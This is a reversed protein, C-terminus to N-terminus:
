EYSILAEEQSEMWNPGVEVDVKLPVLFPQNMEMAARTQKIVTELEKKPTELILEDHVQLIIKSSLDSTKLKKHLDIMAIKILDAATGQLPTNIAAREAFERIAKNRSALEDGLYRRRGFLTEVYGNEHAFQITNEMYEKIKPYTEFYKDIFMKAEGPTINITESLGYATQGYIIGFNVAKATRRMDKTVEEISVDFVKSATATHIDIDKVFAEVLAEDQSYHALLRLEIQSYDASVLLSNQRDEAIFAARIRSGMETRIPINQLNPNSSSLRGTTTVTQNFSTHIRGDIHSVLEPLADVYTSKLKSLHRQELINKAIPFDIALSELVKASTSFGEKSKTKGRTPLQMKEFLVDGVQKPSNVNFAQGAEAYIKAELVDINSQLEKSLDHLYDSDICVGTYEIDALVEALPTEIEELLKKEKDTLVKLYYRTLELTAFADDCAYDSAEAISVREMTIANKGKGILADIEKMEYGLNYLAQQKLGHKRSPDKVYSALMTDFLIGKVEISYKRFINKDFKANQLTKGIKENELLPKLKALVYDLELQDGVQHFVPIYATKTKSATSEELIIKSDKAKLNENWGVSIGVLDATLIDIDTTETDLSFFTAKELEKLLKNMDDETTITCKDCELCIDDVADENESSSGFDFGLQMQGQSAPKVAIKPKLATDDASIQPLVGNNFPKLIEPLSKLFSYFEVKRLFESVNHVDPMTLHTHEFDFDIDVNKDITALVYSTHAIEVGDKLKQQLSAGKVIAANALVNELDSYEALLKVATKDGIGKIGPINDSSDGCLAKYDVIQEPWVGMKEFVKDRDYELLEGKSPILVSILGEKDILQFSDRDGTLILSKHGLEKAKRTITGIVDDAEFGEKTYIPIDFSKLGEIILGIQDPLSDPMSVRNAKYEPYIETRFTQRGVDFSVAIADPAIDTSKLLDFVAKFFGYVAWTSDGKKNKMKTRELAFFCRYALAHGDILILTKSKSSESM